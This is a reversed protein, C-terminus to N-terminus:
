ASQASWAGGGENHYIYFDFCQRILSDSSEFIYAPKFYYYSFMTRWHKALLNVALMRIELSYNNCDM